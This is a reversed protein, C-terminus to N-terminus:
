ITRVALIELEVYALWCDNGGVGLGVGLEARIPGAFCGIVQDGTSAITKRDFTESVAHALTMAEDVTNALCNIQYTGEALSFATTRSPVVEAVQILVAYPTIPQAPAQHFWLTRDSFRITLGPQGNWYATIAGVLNDTNM